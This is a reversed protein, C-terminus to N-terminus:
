RMFLKKNREDYAQSDHEHRDKWRQDNKILM